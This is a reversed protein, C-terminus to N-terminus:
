FKYGVGIMLSNLGLDLDDYLNFPDEDHRNTLEHFYKAELFFSDNIKYGLGIGLDLGFNNYLRSSEQLVVSAQPGGQLYIGSDGIHYQLMLPVYLLNVESSHAYQVAPVLSLSENLTIDLLAGVYFGSSTDTDDINTDNKSYMANLYGATLGFSTEQAFSSFSLIIFGAILIIKKFM